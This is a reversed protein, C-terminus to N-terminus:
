PKSPDDFYPDFLPQCDGYGVTSRFNESPAMLGDFRLVKRADSARRANRLRSAGQWISYVRHSQM